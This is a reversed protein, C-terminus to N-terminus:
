KFSFRLVAIFWSGLRSKKLWDKVWSGFKRYSATYRWIRSESIQQYNKLVQDHRRKLELNELVLANEFAYVEIERESIADLNLKRPTNAM